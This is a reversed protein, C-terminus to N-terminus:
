TARLGLHGVGGIRLDRSRGWFWSSFLSDGWQRVGGLSRSGFFRPNEFKTSNGGGKGGIFGYLDPIAETRPLQEEANFSLRFNTGSAPPGARFFSCARTGFHPFGLSPSAAVFFLRKGVYQFIHRQMKTPGIKGSDEKATAFHNCKVSNCWRASTRTCFFAACRSPTLSLFLRTSCQRRWGIRLSSTRVFCIRELGVPSLLM